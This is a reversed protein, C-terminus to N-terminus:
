YFLSKKQLFDYYNNIILSPKFSPELIGNQDFLCTKVSLLQGLKLFDTQSSIMLCNEKDIQYRKIIENLDDLNDEQELHCDMSIIKTFYPNLKYKNLLNFTTENNQSLLFNRGNNAALAKQVNLIIQSQSRNQQEYKRFLTKLNNLDLNFYAAFKQLCTVISHRRMTLDIEYDDIEFEDINLDLLSQILSKVLLPYIDVITESFGWIFDMSNIGEIFIVCYKNITLILFLLLLDMM